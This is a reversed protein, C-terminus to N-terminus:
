VHGTTKRASGRIRALNMSAFIMRVRIGTTRALGRLPRMSVHPRMAHTARARTATTATWAFVRIAANRIARTKRRSMSVCGAWVPTPPARTATTATRQRGMVALCRDARKVCTTRPAPIQMTASITAVSKVVRFPWPPWARTAQRVSAACVRGIGIGPVPVAAWRAANCRSRRRPLSMMWLQMRRRPPRGSAVIAAVIACCEDMMPCCESVPPDDGEIAVRGSEAAETNMRAIEVDPDFGMLWLITWPDAPLWVTDDVVQSDAWKTGPRDPPDYADTGDPASRRVVALAVARELSPDAMALMVTDVGFEAELALLADGVDAPRTLLRGYVYSQDAGFQNWYALFGPQKRPRDAPMAAAYILFVGGPTIVRVREVARPAGRRDAEARGPGGWTGGGGAMGMGLTASAGGGADGAGAAVAAANGSSLLGSMGWGLLIGVGVRATRM